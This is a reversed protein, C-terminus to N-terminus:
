TPNRVFGERGCLGVEVTKGDDMVSLFSALGDNLFFAFKSAEGAENLLTPTPLSVFGLKSFLAVREQSPLALLIKNHVPHGNIVVAPKVPFKEVHM